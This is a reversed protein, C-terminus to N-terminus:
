LVVKGPLYTAPISTQRVISSLTLAPHKCIGPFLWELSTLLNQHHQLLFATWLTVVILLRFLLSLFSPPAALPAACCRAFFAM